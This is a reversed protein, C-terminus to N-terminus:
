LAKSPSGVCRQYVAEFPEELTTPDGYYALNGDNLITAKTCLELGKEFDHSTMIVTGGQARFAKLTQTLFSIGEHDLGTYPEDLLLLRPAHLLARAIALRQQMGRSFTEVLQDRQESLGVEHLLTEIRDPLHQVQFMQGYFKLNEYGTLTPFLLPHHTLVGILYRVLAGDQALDYGLLTGNGSTPRTLTSLIRLLTTKGAGNPGFVTLFEGQKLTLNIGNLVRIFGFQKTLNSIRVAPPIPAQTSESM